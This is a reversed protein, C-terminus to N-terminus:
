GAASAADRRSTFHDIVADALADITAETAEVGVTVGHARLSESTIPGISCVLARDAIRGKEEPSLLSFFNDATSSSTFTVADIEDSRILERIQEAHGAVPRNQYAIGLDARGGAARLRELLDDRGVAARIVAIRVGEIEGLLPLVATSEFREPVADAIVGHARLSDATVRGVAAVRATGLIRADKGLEFLRRFFRDVGNVSTFVIWQIRPMENIIGDLSDWSDPDRIEIMPFQFVRAGAEEFRRALGSAQSRARTVIVTRGFMPRREFWDITERLSVVEGVVVLAPTELAAQEVREAIDLLTGIITRQRSTTAHSIVAVPTESSRGYQQLKRAILALNGFGMFFVLTGRGRALAAWDTGSTEASEHGTILTVSTALTRHTVPIGAYAPGAIGSSIGPIVEFEIGAARLDEAEEGGRGFVFPDGGKLRVVDHGSRAEEILVRNIEEQSLSHRGARKGADLIRAEPNALALIEASALADIVLVEAERILEAARVTLLGPNGPGAGVLFVKGFGDKESM